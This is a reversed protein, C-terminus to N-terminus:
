QLKEEIKIIDKTHEGVIDPSHTAFIIQVNSNLKEISQVLESQWGVHLSLEPEDAIFVFPHKEYLLVEGLMIFMQKEGSSLVTTTFIKGSQTVIEIENRDTIRAKKRSFLRNIIEVFTDRQAYIRNKTEQLRRWDTVIRALRQNDYMVVLDDATISGHSGVKETAAKLREFHNSISRRTRNRDMKFENFVAELGSQDTSANHALSSLGLNRRDSSSVLSLFIKEQFLDTERQAKTQLSSFYTAFDRTVQTLKADISPLFREEPFDRASTSHSRWIPLWSLKVLDALQQQLGLHRAENSPSMRRRRAMRIDAFDDFEYKTPKESASAKLYYNIQALYENIPTKTVRISPKQNKGVTKLVINMENFDLKTLTEFDMRLAASLLDIFTTKGSGNVGILFNRSTRFTMDVSKDGWFGSISVREIVNVM